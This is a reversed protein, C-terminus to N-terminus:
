TSSTTAWLYGAGRAQHSVIEVRISYPSTFVRALMNTESYVWTSLEGSIVSRSDADSSRYILSHTWSPHMGYKQWNLAVMQIGRKWFATPHFNNSTVRTLGPYVRMLHRLNHKEVQDNTQKNKFLEKIKPESFSYVHNYLTSEPLEFNRWKYAKTYVAM